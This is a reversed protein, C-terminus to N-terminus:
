SHHIGLLHKCGHEVLFSIEEDVSKGDTAADKLAQPYSILVSGLRLWNDPYSIFGVSRQQTINQPTPDELAFTLIDTTADIGRYTRNLQHMKRDGVISVEVEVKGHTGYNSLTSVVASQIVTKSVKYRSDGNIIINVM